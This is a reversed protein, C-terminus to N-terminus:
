SMAWIPLLKQHDFVRLPGSSSDPGARTMAKLLMRNEKRCASGSGRRLRVRRRGHVERSRRTRLV